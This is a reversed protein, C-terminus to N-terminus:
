NASQTRWESLMGLMGCVRQSDLKSEALAGVDLIQPLKRETLFLSQAAPPPHVASRTTLAMSDVASRFPTM